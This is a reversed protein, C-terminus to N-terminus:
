EKLYLVLVQHALDFWHVETPIDRIPFTGGLRNITEEVEKKHRSLCGVGAVMYGLDTERERRQPIKFSYKEKDPIEAKVWDLGSETLELKESDIIGVERLYELDKSHVDPVIELFGWVWAIQLTDFYGNKAVNGEM